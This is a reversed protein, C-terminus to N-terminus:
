DNIYLSNKKQVRLAIKKPIFITDGQYNNDGLSTGNQYM